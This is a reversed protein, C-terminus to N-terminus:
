KVLVEFVKRGDVLILYVGTKAMPVAEVDALVQKESMLRGQLDYVKINSQAGSVIINKGNVYAFVPNEDFTQAGNNEVEAINSIALSFPGSEAKLMPVNSSSLFLTDPFDVGVFYGQTGVPIQESYRRLKNPAVQAVELNGNKTIRYVSYHDYFAGEYSTWSLEVTKKGDVDQVALDLGISKNEGYGIESVNGCFDTASIKYRYSANPEDLDYDQYLPFSPRAFGISDYEGKQEATERYVTFYDIAEIDSIYDFTWMVVISKSDESYTVGYVEPATWFTEDSVVIENASKCGLSNTVEILYRGAAIENKYLYYSGWGYDDFQEQDIVEGNITYTYPENYGKSVDIYFGGEEKGCVTNYGSVAVGPGDTPNLHYERKMSCVDAYTVEVSYFGAELNTITATTSDVNWKFAQAPETYYEPVYVSISGNAEGCSPYIIDETLWFDPSTIYFSGAVTCGISDTVVVYYTNDPVNYIGNDTRGTSWLYSYPEVGGTPELVISGDRTGMCTVNTITENLQINCTVEQGNFIIPKDIITVIFELYAWGFVDEESVVNGEIMVIYEGAKYAVIGLEDKIVSASCSTCFDKEEHEHGKESIRVYYDLKYDSLFYDSLKIRPIQDGLEATVDPIVLGIVTPDIEKYNVSFKSLSIAVSETANSQASFVINTSLFDMGEGANNTTLYYNYTFKEGAVVNITVKESLEVFFNNNGEGAIWFSLTGTYDATGSMYFTFKENETPIWDEESWTSNYYAEQLHLTDRVMLHSSEDASANYMITFNVATETTDFEILSIANQSFCALTTIILAILLSSFRKM